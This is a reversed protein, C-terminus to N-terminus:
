AHVTGVDSASGTLRRARIAQSAVVALILAAEIVSVLTSPVGADRQMAGSGAELAGFLSATLVV